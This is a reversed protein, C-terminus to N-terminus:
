SFSILDAFDCAFHHLRESGQVGLEFMECRSRQRGLARDNLKDIIQKFHDIGTVEASLIHFDRIDLIVDPIEDIRDIRPERLLGIPADPRFAVLVLVTIALM